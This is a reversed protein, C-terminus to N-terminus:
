LNFLIGSSFLIDLFCNTYINFHVCEDDEPFILEVRRGDGYKLANEIINQM